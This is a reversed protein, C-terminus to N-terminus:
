VDVVQSALKRSLLKGIIKDPEFLSRRYTIMQM